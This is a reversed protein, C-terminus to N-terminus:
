HQLKLIKRSRFKERGSAALFHCTISDHAQKIRENAAAVPLSASVRADVDIVAAQSTLQIVNSFIGLSAGKDLVRPGAM